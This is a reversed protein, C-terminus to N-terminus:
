HVHVDDKRVGSRCLFLGPLGNVRQHPRQHARKTPDEPQPLLTRNVSTALESIIPRAPKMRASQQALPPIASARPKPGRPTVRAPELGTEGVMGTTTSVESHM